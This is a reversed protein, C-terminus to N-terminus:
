IFIIIETKRYDITRSKIKFDLGVTYILYLEVKFDVMANFWLFKIKDIKPSLQYMVLIFKIIKFIKVTIIFEIHLIFLLVNHLPLHM